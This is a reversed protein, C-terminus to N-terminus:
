AADPWSRAFPSTIMSAAEVVAPPSMVPLAEVNIVRRGTEPDVSYKFPWPKTLLRIPEAM